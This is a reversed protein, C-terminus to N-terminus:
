NIFKCNGPLRKSLILERIKNIIKDIEEKLGKLYKEVEKTDVGESFIREISVYCEKIEKVDGCAYERQWDELKEEEGGSVVRLYNNERGLLFSREFLYIALAGAHMYSRQKKGTYDKLKINSIIKVELDKIIQLCKKSYGMFREEFSELRTSLERYHNQKVDEYLTKDINDEGELIEFGSSITTDSKGITKTKGIKRTASVQVNTKKREITPLHYNILRCLLPKFVKEKIEIFHEERKRHKRRACEALYPGLFVGIGTIIGVIKESTIWKFISGICFRIQSCITVM